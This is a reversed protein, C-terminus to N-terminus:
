LGVYEELPRDQDPTGQLNLFRVAGDTDQLQVSMSRIPHISGRIPNVELTIIDHPHGSWRSAGDYLSAHMVYLPLLDDVLTRHQQVSLMQRITIKITNLLIQHDHAVELPFQLASYLHSLPM